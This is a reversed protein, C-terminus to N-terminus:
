GVDERLVEIPNMGYVEGRADAEIIPVTTPRLTILGHMYFAYDFLDSGESDDTAMLEELMQNMRAFTKAYQRHWHANPQAAKELPVDYNFEEKTLPRWPGFGLDGEGPENSRTNSGDDHIM